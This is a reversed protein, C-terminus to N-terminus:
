HEESNEIRRHDQVTEPAIQERLWIREVAPYLAVIPLFVLAGVVGALEGGVALALVVALDSLRLSRGYVKPTIYYNEVVNYTAHFATVGLATWTSVTLGLLIAPVASLVIGIVPLLDFIATLLALLLAAPVHLLRMAVYACVGALVSTIANGRVYALIARRAEVATTRVRDRHQSPAFAVLWEFTRRGDLLLYVTLVAAVGMSLVGSVVAQGLTFLFSGIQKSNDGRKPLLAMIRDPTRKVVEEKVADFRSTLLGAQEVLAAGAFYVFAVVGAALVLMLLPAAYRRRLGHADLWTVIPDLGVALFAAVVFLLVWQWLMLWLWVGALACLVRAITRGSIDVPLPRRM